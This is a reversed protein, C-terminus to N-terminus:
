FLVVQFMSVHYKNHVQIVNILHSLKVFNLGLYLHYNNESIRKSM